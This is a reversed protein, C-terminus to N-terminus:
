RGPTRFQHALRWQSVATNPDFMVDRGTQKDVGITLRNYRSALKRVRLEADRAGFNNPELSAFDTLEPQFRDDLEVILRDIVDCYLDIKM